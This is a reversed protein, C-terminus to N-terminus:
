YLTQGGFSVFLKSGLAAHFSFFSVWVFHERVKVLVIHQLPIHIFYNWM